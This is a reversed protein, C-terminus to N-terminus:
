VATMAAPIELFNEVLPSFDANTEMERALLFCPLTKYLSTLLELEDEIFIGDKRFAGFSITNRKLYSRYVM